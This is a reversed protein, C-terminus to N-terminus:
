PDVNAVDGKFVVDILSFDGFAHANTNHGDYPGVKCVRLGHEFVLQLGHEPEWTVEGEFSIYSPAPEFRDSGVTISPPNRFKVHDWIDSTAPIDPIGYAARETQSFGSAFWRYYAWLHDTAQELMDPGASVFNAIAEDYVVREDLSPEDEDFDPTRVLSDLIRKQERVRDSAM